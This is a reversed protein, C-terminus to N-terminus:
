VEVWRDEDMQDLLAQTVQVAPHTLLSQADVEPLVDAALDNRDFFANFGYRNGGVLRYGKKRALKVMAGLSAGIYLSGKEWTWEDQYPLTRAMDAPWVANYETVVIRPDVCDVAEWIWYDM